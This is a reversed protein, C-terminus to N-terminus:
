QAYQFEYRYNNDMASVVFGENSDLIELKYIEQTERDNVSKILHSHLPFFNNMPYFFEEAILRAKDYFPNIIEHIEVENDNIAVLRDNSYYFDDQQILVSDANFVSKSVLRDNEYEFSQYEVIKDLEEFFYRGSILIRSTYGNEYEYYIRNNDIFGSTSIVITSISDLKRNNSYHFFHKGTPRGTVGLPFIYISDIRKTENYFYKLTMHQDGEFNNIYIKVEEILMPKNDGEISDPTITQQNGNSPEDDSCSSNFFFLFLLIYINKKRLLIM